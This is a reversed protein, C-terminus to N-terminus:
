SEVFTINSFQVLFSPTHIHKSCQVVAGVVAVVVSFSSSAAVFVFFFFVGFTDHSFLFYAVVVATYREITRRILSHVNRNITKVWMYIIYRYAIYACTQRHIRENQKPVFTAFLTGIM